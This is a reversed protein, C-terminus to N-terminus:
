YHAISLMKEPTQQGYSLNKVPATILSHVTPRLLSMRLQSLFQHESTLLFSQDGGPLPSDQETFAHHAPCLSVHLCPATVPVQLPLPLLRTATGQPTGAKPAYCHCRNTGSQVQSM